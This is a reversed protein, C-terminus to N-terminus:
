RGAQVVTGCRRARDLLRGVTVTRRPAIRCGAARLGFAAWHNCNNLVHYPYPSHYFRSQPYYGPAAVAPRGAPDTRFSRAVFDVLAELEADSVPIRVVASAPFREAPARALPVVHVVSGTPWLGARALTWPGPEPNPYYDAEGWGFELYRGDPLADFPARGNPLDAQRIAIGAHWGHRVVYVASTSDPSRAELHRPMQCSAALVAGWALVTVILLRWGWRTLM